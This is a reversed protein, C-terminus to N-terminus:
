ESVNAQFLRIKRTSRCLEGVLIARSSRSSSGSKRSLEARTWVVTEFRMSM